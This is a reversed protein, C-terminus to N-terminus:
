PTVKDNAYFPVAGYGCEQALKQVPALHTAKDCRPGACIAEIPLPGFSPGPVEIYPRRAADFRHHEKPRRFVIRWEQEHEYEHPKFMTAFWAIHHFFRGAYASAAAARGAAVDAVYLATIRDLASEFFDAQQATDYNCRVFM